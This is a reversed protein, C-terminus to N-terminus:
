DREISLTLVAPEPLEEFDLKGFEWNEVRGKRIRLWLALMIVFLAVTSAPGKLAGYVIGSLVSVYLALSVVYIGGAAAVLAVQAIKSDLSPVIALPVAMLALAVGLRLLVDPQWLDRLRHPLYPIRILFMILPRVGLVLAGGM